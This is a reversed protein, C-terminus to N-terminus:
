WSIDILYQGAPVVGARIMEPLVVGPKPSHGEMRSHRWTDLKGADYEDLGGGDATVSHTDGNNGEVALCASYPIGDYFESVAKNFDREDVEHIVRTRIKM